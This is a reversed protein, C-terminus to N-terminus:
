SFYFKLASRDIARRVAPDPVLTRYDSIAKAYTMESEHAVFPWDSGWFLRDTGGSAMLLDSFRRLTEIPTLRFAGSLKVWTRGREVARLVATFGESNVGLSLDPRGFHDIVLKVGANEIQRISEPLRQGEDHLHVHWDLDALRRFLKRYEFSSLDPVSALSRFQLRIGMVGDKDMARLTDLEISPSVIVTARLRKHRRVADRMYDNYDEYISAAALVGFHVGAQDLTALFQELTANGAPAHWATGSLPMGAHFIHAHVDVLSAFDADEDFGAVYKDERRRDKVRWRNM